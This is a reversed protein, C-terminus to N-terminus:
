TLQPVLDETVYKKFQLLRSGYWSFMEGNVFIVKAFTQNELFDKHKLKFPFPESSLFIFDPDMKQIREITIENYRLNTQDANQLGISELMTNIFTHSGAAMFPNNWILYLVSGSIKPLTKFSYKLKANLLQAEQSRNSLKGVDSIMQYVDTLSKIDSTYVPFLTRLQDIDSKSNEEKNALIVDPSLDIITDINVNKTGGVRHKTSFWEIPHVCFKTIGVVERDLGLYHLLETQSPVLSVIKLVRGTVFVPHNTQDVLKM